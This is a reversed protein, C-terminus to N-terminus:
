RVVGVLDCFFLASFGLDSELRRFLGVFDEVIVILSVQVVRVAHRGEVGGIAHAAAATGVHIVDKRLHKTAHSAEAAHRTHSSHAATHGATAIDRPFTTRYLLLVLDAELLKVLALRGLEGVGLVDNTGDALATAALLTSLAL